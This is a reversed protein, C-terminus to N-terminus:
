SRQRQLQDGLAHALHLLFVLRNPLGPLFLSTGFSFLRRHQGYFTREVAYTTQIDKFLTV